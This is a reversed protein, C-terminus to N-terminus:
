NLLNLCIYIPTYRNLKESRRRLVVNQIFSSRRSIKWSHLSFVLSFTIWMPFRRPILRHPVCQSKSQVPRKNFSFYKVLPISKRHETTAHLLLQYFLAFIWKFITLYLQQVRFPEIGRPCSGASWIHWLSQRPFHFPFHSLDAVEWHALSIISQLKGSCTKFKILNKSEVPLNSPATFCVASQNSCKRLHHSQILAVKFSYLM